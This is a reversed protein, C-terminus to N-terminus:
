GLDMGLSQLQALLASGPDDVSNWNDATLNSLTLDEAQVGQLTTLNGGNGLIEIVLDDGMETVQLNQSGLSRFDLRDQAPDFGEFTTKAGWDWFLEITDPGDTLATAGAGGNGTDTPPTAGSGDGQDQDELDGTRTQFGDTTAGAPAQPTLLEARSVLTVADQEFGFPVELNDEIVQDHHFEVRGPVLDALTVGALTLSQGSPLSSIVLGDATDEVSLRERTGFYLFSLKMSNPDFGNMVEHVGYEHSRVYVTDQARPGQGLEWSLVGGIDQRFHENGVIGFSDISLDQFGVGQVIQAADSWPSDVVIEGNASKTLIMGHVSTDGVSLIDRAPDFGTIDDANSDARWITGGNDTTGLIQPPNSGDTDYSLVYGDSGAPETIVTGLASAVENQASAEAISFNAMTLDALGLGQLITTSMVAGADDSVALRVTQGLADGSEEFIDLRTGTVGAGLHLMDKSPDFDAITRSPTDLTIDIMMGEHMGGSSGGAHHGDTEGVLEAFVARASGDLVNIRAPDLEAASVGALTVSQNNSPIAITLGNTSETVSLADAGIWAIFLTDSAPDFEVTEARGWQWDIAVSANGASITDNAFDDVSPPTTPMEPAPPDVPPSPEGPEVPDPTDGVEIPASGQYVAIAEEVTPTTYGGFQEIYRLISTGYEDTSVAGNQLLSLTGWAGRLHAAAMIGSLTLTVTVPQGADVYSRTSGIYDDLSEGQYGLGTEIVQLNYGFAEQIAHEQAAGTMFDELSHVGNKGTWTGDWTNTAAGNGYFLDDQYYGLDILLAEGFQYGVFGLSNMSRYSMAQWEDDSLDGWRSHTPFFDTVSGDAWQDLQWDAITGAEYRDRDWGSEFDRLADRFESYSGSTM